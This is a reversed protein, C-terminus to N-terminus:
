ILCEILLGLFGCDFWNWWYNFFSLFNKFLLLCWIVIVVWNLMFVVNMVLMLCDRLLLFFIFRVKVLCWISMCEWVFIRLIFMLLEIWIVVFIILLLYRGRVIFIGWILFLNWICFMLGSCCVILYLCLILLCVWNWNLDLFCVKKIWMIWCYSWVRWLDRLFCNMRWMM